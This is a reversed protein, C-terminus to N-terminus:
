IRERDPKIKFPHHRRTGEFRINNDFMTRHDAFMESLCETDLRHSKADPNKVEFRKSYQRRVNESLVESQIINTSRHDDATEISRTYEYPHAPIGPHVCMIHQKDPCIAIKPYKSMLRRAICSLLKM